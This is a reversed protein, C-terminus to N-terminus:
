KVNVSASALGCFQPKGRPFFSRSTLVIFLDLIITTSTMIIIMILVAAAATVEADM